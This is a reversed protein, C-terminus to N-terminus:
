RTSKMALFYRTILHRSISYKGNKQRSPKLQPLGKHKRGKPTGGCILRSEPNDLLMPRVANDWLYSDRLIIGAENLIILDYGFGEWKQPMDASRFDCTCGNLSLMKEQKQWNWFKEPIQKLMPMFYRAVYKEINGLLTDGWLIRKYKAALMWKIVAQASGQTFGLRRGKHILKFRTDDQFFVKEQWPLYTAKIKIAEGM